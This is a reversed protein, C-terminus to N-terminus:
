IGEGGVFTSEPRNIFGLILGAIPLCWSLVIGIIALTKREEIEVSKLNLVTSWIALGLWVILWM